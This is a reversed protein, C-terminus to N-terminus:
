NTRKGFEPWFRAYIANVKAPSLGASDAQARWLGHDLSGVGDDGDLDWNENTEWDVVRVRYSQNPDLVLRGHPTDDWQVWELSVAVREGHMEVCELAFAEGRAHIPFYQDMEEPSMRFSPWGLAMCVPIIFTLINPM